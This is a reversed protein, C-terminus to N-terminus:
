KRQPKPLDDTRGADELCAREVQEIAYQVTRQQEKSSQLPSGAVAEKLREIAYSCTPDSYPRDPNVPMSARVGFASFCFAVVAILLRANKM